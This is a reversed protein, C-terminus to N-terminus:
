PKLLMRMPEDSAAAPRSSAATPATNVAISSPM